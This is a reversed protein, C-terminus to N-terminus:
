IDNNEWKLEGLKISHESVYRLLYSVEAEVNSRSVEKTWCKFFPNWKYVAM